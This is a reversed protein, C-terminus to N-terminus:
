KVGILERSGNQLIESFRSFLRDTYQMGNFM